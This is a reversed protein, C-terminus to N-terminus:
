TIDVAQTNQAKNTKRLLLIPKLKFFFKLTAKFGTYLFWYDDVSFFRTDYRIIDLKRHIYFHLQVLMILVLKTLGHRIEPSVFSTKIKYNYM